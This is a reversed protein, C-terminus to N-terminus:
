KRADGMVKERNLGFIERLVRCEFERMRYEERL